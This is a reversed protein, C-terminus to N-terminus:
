CKGWYRTKVCMERELGSPSPLTNVPLSRSAGVTSRNHAQHSTTYYCCNYTAISFSKLVSVFVVIGTSYTTGRSYRHLSGEDCGSLDRVEHNMITNGVIDVLLSCMCVCCSGMWRDQGRRWTSKYIWGEVEDDKDGECSRLLSGWGLWLRM